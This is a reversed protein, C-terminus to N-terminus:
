KKSADDDRVDKLADHLLSSIRTGRVTSDDYYFRLEPTVRLKVAHALEYRFAKADSNLANITEKIKDANDELVSVYVKAHSFDPSVTVGTLTIMSLGSGKVQEQIIRALETQILDGVRQTRSYHRPM